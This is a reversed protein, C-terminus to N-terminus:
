WKKIKFKIRDEPRALLLSGDVKVKRKDPITFVFQTYKKQIKKETNRTKIILFNKTENVIKGKKGIINKNSSDVIEVYLGILEHQIINQPTIM